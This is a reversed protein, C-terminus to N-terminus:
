RVLTVKCPTLQGEVCTANPDVPGPEYDVTEVFVGTIAGKPPNPMTVNGWTTDPCPDSQNNNAGTWNMVYFSAFGLVPIEDDAGTLGKSSRYPVIFLNVVRPYHSDGGQQIWGPNGSKGDYNGDWNCAFQACSNNQIRNCNDTAVAIDDGVQGTSMGPATLVCQWYNTSSNKGMAPTGASFWLSSDPCQKQGGSGTVWWPDTWKNAGYWPTCGTKFVQFEQGQAVNPDCHLTQNAQPDDLRLTVFTGTKLVSRIGVTPFIQVTQGGPSNDFPSSPLGGSAASASNRVLAVAGANADTGVFARQVPQSGSYKCPNGNGNKCQNGQWDHSTDTDTWNLSITVNNAGAAGSLANGASAYQSVGNPTWSLRTLATGNASVTFNAPVNTTGTNRTGWNVDVKVDYGCNNAGVPLSSFYADAIGGCGGTLYVNTIRPEATANGDNPVRIQSLRHFCDAYQLAALANCSQNLDIEDRSAIRVETGVALYDGCASDFSPITLGFSLNPDGVGTNGATPLTWLAGGDPSAGSPALDKTALLTNHCEDYYRIQVKRIVNDPVALPLFRNGSLAPRIEVRAEATNRSLPLGISGFLSPLDREKVKVDTWQGGGPSFPDQNQPHNYCPDGINTPSGDGDDSYDTNDTYSTSNINVNLKSQNAIESNYLSAPLVGGAYDSADPDAAYTRAADAIKQATSAKLVLDGNQVCAKWNKAYEVGAAFAAADARNQLQRKHTFWDGVDVVLACLLLFVPIMIAALAMVGGREGGLRSV